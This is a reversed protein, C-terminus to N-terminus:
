IINLIAITTNNAVTGLPWFGNAPMIPIANNTPSKTRQITIIAL